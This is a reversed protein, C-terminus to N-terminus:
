HLHPQCLGKRCVQLSVAMTTRRSLTKSPTQKVESKLTFVSYLCNVLINFMTQKITSHTNKTQSSVVFCNLPVLYSSLAQTLDPEGPIVLYVKLPQNSNQNANFDHTISGSGSLPQNRGNCYGGRSPSGAM